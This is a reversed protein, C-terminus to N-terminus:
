CTEHSTVVRGTSSPGWCGGPCALGRRCEQAGGRQVEEGAGCCSWRGAAGYPLRQGRSWAESTGASGDTEVVLCYFSLTHWHVVLLLWAM